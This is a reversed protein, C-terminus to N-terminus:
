LYWLEANRWYKFFVRKVTELTMKHGLSPSKGSFKHRTTQTMTFLREKSDKIHKNEQTDIQVEWHTLSSNQSSCELWSDEKNNWLTDAESIPCHAAIVLSSAAETQRTDSSLETVATQISPHQHWSLTTLTVARVLKVTQDLSQHPPSVPFVM